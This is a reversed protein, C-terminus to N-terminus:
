RLAVWAYGLDRMCERYVVFDDSNTVFQRRPKNEPACVRNDAHYRTQTVPGEWTHTPAPMTSCASVAFAAAAAICMGSLKRRFM